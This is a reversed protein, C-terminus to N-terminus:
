ELAADRRISGGAATRRSAHLQEIESFAHANGPLIEESLRRMAPPHPRGVCGQSARRLALAVGAAGYVVMLAGCVPMAAYWPQKSVRLFPTTEISGATFVWGEYAFVLAFALMLLRALIELAQAGRPPLKQLLFDVRFLTGERWLVVAGAFTMWVTLLEVLEDYGSMSFLPVLRVFVGLTLLVLIAVLAAVVALRLLREVGRDLKKLVSTM